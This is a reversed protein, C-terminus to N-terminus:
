NPSKVGESATKRRLLELFEWGLADVKKLVESIVCALVVNVAYVVVLLIWWPTDEKLLVVPLYIMSSSIGQAFYFFIANRGIRTVFNEKTIVLRGYLSFLTVLSFSTWIIYPLKPPFKLGSIDYVVYKGYFWFMWVLAAGVLSYLTAIAKASIKKGRMQNGILFVALYFAVYGTQGAPCYGPFVSFFVALAVSLGVFWAIHNSFFRLIIVGLVTIIFYLNLFWLSATAVPFTDARTYQHLYWNGLNHLQPYMSCNAASYEPGFISYFEELWKMSFLTQGIVKFLYDLTFLFTVFIMYTVQLRLLRQMTKEINAGLVIGSIAFFVVVDFVLSLASVKLPVYLQGSWYATHILIVSLTALGRAFDIYLDRSMASAM